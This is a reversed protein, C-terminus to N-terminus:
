KSVPIQMATTETTINYIPSRNTLIILNYAATYKILVFSVSATGSDHSLDFSSSVRHEQGGNVEAVLIIAAIDVLAAGPGSQFSYSAFM